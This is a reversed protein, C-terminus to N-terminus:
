APEDPNGPADKTPAPAPEAATGAAPDDFEVPRIDATPRWWVQGDREEVSIPTLRGRGCPGGACQGTEPEYHAGHISCIIWRKDMDLFEGEQWDMQTPVHVCRNLYAVVQGEFRLAFAREARGWQQVDWVHAHGREALADSDCLPLADFAPQGPHPLGPAQEDPM